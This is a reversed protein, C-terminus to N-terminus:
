QVLQNSPLNTRYLCLKTILIMWLLNELAFKMM